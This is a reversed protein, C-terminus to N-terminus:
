KQCDPCFYTSRGAQTIKAIPSQCQVCPSGIRHYVQFEHQFYGKDGNPQRHDSLTSGGAQIAKQLVDQIGPILRKVTSLSLSKAPQEPSIGASFLAECVYINGLGAIVTQDLLVNKIAQQKNQFIKFLRRPDIDDHLPDPGLHQIRPHLRIPSGDHLLLFGFRRPDYFDFFSHDTFLFRVHCHKETKECNVLIRGSMGLHLLICLDNQLHILLYKGIRDLKQISKGPAVKTLNSPFPYRLGARYLKIDQIQKKQFHLLHRRVTEVEPLEPM